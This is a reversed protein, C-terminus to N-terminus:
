TNISKVFCEFCKRPSQENCNQCNTEIESFVSCRYGSFGCLETLAGAFDINDIDEPLIASHEPLLSINSGSFLLKGGSKRRCAFVAAKKMSSTVAGDTCIVADPKAAQEYSSRIILSAGYEDYVKACVSAYREPFATIVRIQSALPLLEPIRSPHVANRDTLTISFSDTPLDAQNIIEKATNFVLLSNMSVPVFRKLGSEDPLIFRKPAIVRSAYRGCESSVTKWDIGRKSELMDLVYFPLSNESRVTHLGNELIVKKQRRRKLFNKEAKVANLVVFM